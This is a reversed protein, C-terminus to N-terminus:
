RGESVTCYKLTYATKPSFRAPHRTLPGYVRTFASAARPTKRFAGFMRVVRPIIRFTTYGGFLEDGGTCSLAVKWGLEAAAKCVFYSNLGDFSPQDMAALARPLESRFEEGSLTTTRHTTGYQM